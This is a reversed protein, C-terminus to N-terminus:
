EKSDLNNKYKQYIEKEVFTIEDKLKDLNLKTIDNNEIIDLINTIKNLDKLVEKPDYKSIEKKNQKSM